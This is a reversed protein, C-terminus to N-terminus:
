MRSEQILGQRVISRSLIKGDLVNYLVIDGGGGGGRPSDHPTVYAGRPLSVLESGREGVMYTGSRTIPGGAQKIGLLSGGLKLAGGALHGAGGVISGVFHAVTKIPGLVSDLATKVIGVAWRVASVIWNMVPHVVHDWAWRFPASLIQYLVSVASKIAGVMWKVAGVAWGVVAGAVKKFTNWHATVLDIAVGIPGLALILIRWHGKVFKVVNAVANGFWKFAAVCAGIVVKTANKLWSWVANVGNRFWKVKMYAAILGGVLAAIAIVILGIPNADMAVSLAAMAGTEAQTALFLARFLNIIPELLAWAKMGVWAGAIAGGLIEFATANQKVFKWVSQLDGWLQKLTAAFRGGAGKGSMMQTVFKSLASFVKTLTPLLAKGLRVELVNITNKFNNMAGAATRSYAATSGSYRQQITTLAKTASIHKPLVIGLRTLMTLHGGETMQVARVARSLDVHAGRAINTALVLDKQSKTVDHTTRLLQTMGQLSETPDFGGQMSMSDAFDSLEGVANKAPHAVNAHISAGLQRQTEQFAISKKIAADLGLVLGGIGAFGITSIAARKLTSFAGGLRSFSGHARKASRESTQIERGVGAVEVQAERAGMTRIRIILSDEVEAV